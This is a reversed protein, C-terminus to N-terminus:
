QRCRLINEALKATEANIEAITAVPMSAAGASSVAVLSSVAILCAAAKAVHSSSSPMDECRQVTVDHDQRISTKYSNTKVVTWRLRNPSTLIITKIRNLSNLTPICGHPKLSGMM